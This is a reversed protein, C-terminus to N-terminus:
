SPTRGRELQASCRACVRMERPGEDETVYSIVDRSGELPGFCVGCRKEVGFMRQLTRTLLSIVAM